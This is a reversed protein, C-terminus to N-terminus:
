GFRDLISAEALRSVGDRVSRARADGVGEVQLLDDASAALLRQLSGFHGVIRDVIVDPLRPVRALLRFGRPNAPGELADTTDPFGFTHAVTVLDLLDVESLYDLEELAREVGRKKRNAAPVLYDRVLLVRDTDVGAVLDALQLALLRGETGLEVVYSDIERRIRRVMESRQAVVAVDRVTALNEIELASLSGSVEDLRARYRELTALAQNARSLIGASDELVHRRGDVYIAIINMSKSVSIVPRHTQRAVRDATRHRTGTEETPLTPDPMLQVAARTIKLTDADLVIAGDMKTLERLRAASYEVDLVFGGNVVQEVQRDWGLVILAGTRGRLIRELGDRLPTGPAVKALVDYLGGGPVADGPAMTVGITRTAARRGVGVTGRLAAACVSM